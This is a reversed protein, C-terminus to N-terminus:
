TFIWVGGEIEGRGARNQYGPSVLEPRLHLMLLSNLASGWGGLVPVLGWLNVMRGGYVDHFYDSAQDISRIHLARRIV